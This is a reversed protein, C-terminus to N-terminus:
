KPKNLNRKTSNKLIINTKPYYLTQAIHNEYKTILLSPSATLHKWM